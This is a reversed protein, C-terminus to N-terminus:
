LCVVAMGNGTKIPFCTSSVDALQSDITLTINSSDVGGPLEYDATLQDFPKTKNDNDDYYGTDTIDTCNNQCDYHLQWKKGPDPVVNILYDQESTGAAITVLTQHVGGSGSKNTAQVVFLIGGEPAIGQSLRLKGSIENGSLLTMDITNYANGGPLLTAQIRDSTTTNSTGSNYYGSTIYSSCAAASIATNCEYSIRWNLTPDILTALTYDVQSAGFPITAYTISTQSLDVNDQAMITLNLGGAETVASPVHITGTVPYGSMLTMNAVMNAGGQLAEAQAADDTTNNVAASQFYGFTIYPACDLDFGSQCAYNVTWSETNTNPLTIKYPASSAGAPITLGLETFIVTPDDISDASISFNVGDGSAVGSPLSLTGSLPKGKMLTLSLNTHDVDGALDTAREGRYDINGIIAPNNNRFFGTVVLNECPIPNPFSSCNYKLRWSAANDTPVSPLSFPFEDGSVSGGPISVLVQQQPNNATQDNARVWVTMDASIAPIGAPLILKGSITIASASSAFFTFLLLGLGAVAIRLRPTNM